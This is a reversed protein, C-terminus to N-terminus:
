KMQNKTKIIQDDRKVATFFCNKQSFHVTIDIHGFFLHDLKDLEDPLMRKKIILLAMGVPLSSQFVTGPAGDSRNEAFPNCTVYYVEFYIVM